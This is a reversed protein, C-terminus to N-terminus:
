KEYWEFFWDAFRALLELVLTVLSKIGDVSMACLKKM